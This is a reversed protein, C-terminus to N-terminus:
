RSIDATWNLVINLHEADTQPIENVLFKQGDGAVAYQAGSASVLLPFLPKVIPANLANGTQMGAVMLKRDESIFFLEKGDKRWMPRSGGGNSIQRKEALSPMSAIYVEPRGSQRSTYAIQRGDPSFRADSFEFSTDIIALPKRESLFDLLSLKKTDADVFALLRGDSSWDQPDAHSAVLVTKAGSSLAIEELGGNKVNRYAIRQSDNSWIPFALWEQPDLTLRRSSDNALDILWLSSAGIREPRAVAVHKEDPSLAIQDFDAPGGISALRKGDRDYWTLRKGTVGMSSRYVLVGNDSVTFGTRGTRETFNIDPAVADAEGTLQFRRLDLHQAFLTGERVFLLDGPPAYLARFISKLVLAKQASGIEQVYIGSKESDTSRALYLFHKGDPLFQPWMHSTESRSQDLITVPSPLGGSSPVWMLGATGAFVITGDRSWTGGGGPPADCITQPAGGSAAVKKLKHDAFFGISQGDPSWFPFEGGDTRDLRQPNFSGLPRIWLFPKGGPGAAAFVLKRGDASIAMQPAAVGSPM